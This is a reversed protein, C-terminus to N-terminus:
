LCENKYYLQHIYLKKTRPYRLCRGIIQDRMINNIYSFLILNDAYEINLGVSLSIDNIFLLNTNKDDKFKKMIKTLDEINGGNLEIYNYEKNSYYNNIFKDLGRFQSFLVTKKNSIDLIQELMFIKDWQMCEYKIQETNKLILSKKTHNIKCKVCPIKIKHDELNELDIDKIFEFICENCICNNCPTEYYDIIKSKFENEVDMEMIKNFCLICIKEDFCINRISTIVGNYEEYEQVLKNKTFEYKERDNENNYYKMSKEKEKIDDEKSTILKNMNIYLNKVIDRTNKLEENGCEKSVASYEHSNIKNLVDKSLINSLINDIYYDKCIYEEYIPSKINMCKRIFDINCSCDNILLNPLYLEYAGILAKQTNNEFINKISASIFWIMSSNIKNILLNKMTDAEDFFVGRFNYSIQVTTLSLITYLIPTTLIIDYNQLMLQDSHLKNIDSNETLVKVKLDCFISISEVWQYFINNPVVILFCSKKNNEFLKIFYILALIVFSKGSGPIDSFLGFNLKGDKFKEDIQLAKYLLAKQHPKLIKKFINNNIDLSPSKENLKEM